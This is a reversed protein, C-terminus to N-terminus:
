YSAELVKTINSSIEQSVYKKMDETKTYKSLDINMGLEDWNSGNWAYNMGTDKVDWVDGVEATSKKDDLDSKTNVSGKPTYVSSVKAEVEDIRENIETKATKIKNDIDESTPMDNSLDELGEEIHNMREAEVLTGEKVINGPKQTLNLINGNQDEYRNPYEVIRDEWVNKVYKSM